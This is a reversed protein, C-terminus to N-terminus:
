GFAEKKAMKQLNRWCPKVHYRKGGKSVSKQENFITMKCADCVNKGTPIEEPTEIKTPEEEVKKADDKKFISKLWKM